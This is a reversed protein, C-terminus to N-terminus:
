GNSEDEKLSKKIAAMLIEEEHGVFGVAFVGFAGSIAMSGIKGILGANPCLIAFASRMSKYMVVGATISTATQFMDFIKKKKSM